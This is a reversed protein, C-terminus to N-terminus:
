EGPGRKESPKGYLLVSPNQELQNSVRRLSATVDRLETVLRQVDPLTENTFRTSASTGARPSARQVHQRLCRCQPPHAERAAATGRQHARREQPHAGRRDPQCGAQGHLSPGTNIVPYPEGDRATLVPSDRSGGSLEVYAIGTLGQTKLVAVRTRAQDAHRARHALTLRVQELNSRTSRSARQGQRRRRRLYKCRRM